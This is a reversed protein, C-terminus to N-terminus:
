FGTKPLITRIPKSLQSAFITIDFTINSVDQTNYYDNGEYDWYWNITHTVRGSNEIRNSFGKNLDFKENDVIFILNDPFNSSFNDFVIEYEAGLKEVNVTISFSGSTGPAIKGNILTEENCTQALKINSLTDSFLYSDSANVTFKWEDLSNAYGTNRILLIVSIFIVLIKKIHIM